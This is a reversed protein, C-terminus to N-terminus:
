IAGVGDAVMAGGRRGRGGRASGADAGMSYEWGKRHPGTFGWVGRAMLRMRQLERLEGGSGCDWERKRHAAGKM